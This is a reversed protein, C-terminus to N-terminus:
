EKLGQVSAHLGEYVVASRRVSVERVGRIPKAIEEEADGAQIGRAIRGEKCANTGCQLYKRSKEM